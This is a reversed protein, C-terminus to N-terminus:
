SMPPCSSALAGDQDNGSPGDPHLITPQEDGATYKFIWSCTPAEVPEGETITVPQALLGDLTEDKVKGYAAIVDEPTPTDGSGPNEGLAKAFLQLQTWVSSASASEYKVDPGYEAMADRYANVAPSDVWWPFADLTGMWTSGKVKAYESLVVTSSTGGFVGEYGQNLCDAAVRVQVAAATDVEIYDAGEGMLSLCQATYNPASGNIPTKGAFDVGIDSAASEYIDAASACAPSETCYMVGFKAGELKAALVAGRSYGTVSTTVYTINPKDVFAQDFITGLMPVGKDQLYQAVSSAAQNDLNMVAAVKDNEVFNRVVTLGSAPDSKSDEVLVKVQHGAIGGQANIYKEWAPAVKSAEGFLSASHGTLGVSVGITIVGTDGGSGGDDDGCAAALSAVLLVSAAAVCGRM